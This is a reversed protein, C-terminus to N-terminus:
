GAGGSDGFGYFEAATAGLIRSRDHEPLPQVLQSIADWTRTYGGALESIPWDGGYMLREAGFLELADDFFPHIGGVSWGAMDGVSSYLGSVKAFVRPNAAVAALLARWEAHQQATGGIPPKGLHDLVIRLTPHREGITVLEALAAPDSTVFDLTFPSQELLTLGADVMPSIAWERERAHFLNRIGRVIPQETLWQLRAPLQDPEDLPAWAVVALVSPNRRATDLMLETDDANDAAQVLVSGSIGHGALEPALEEFAITRNIPALDPGLWTYEARDLDWVHQHADIIV